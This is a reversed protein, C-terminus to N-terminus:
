FRLAQSFAEYSTELRSLQWPSLHLSFTGKLESLGFFERMISALNFSVSDGQRVLSAAVRVLLAHDHEVYRLTRFLVFACPITGVPLLLRIRRMTDDVKMSDLLGTVAQPTPQLPLMHRLVKSADVETFFPILRHFGDDDISVDGRELRLSLAHLMTVLFARNDMRVLTLFLEWFQAPPLESAIREGLIYGATRFQAVSLTRLFAPLAACGGESLTANLRAYLVTSFHIDRIM